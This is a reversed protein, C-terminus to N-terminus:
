FLKKTVLLSLFSFSRYNAGCTCCFLWFFDFVVCPSKKQSIRDGIGADCIKWFVFYQEQSPVVTCVIIIVSCFLSVIISVGQDRVQHHCVPMSM